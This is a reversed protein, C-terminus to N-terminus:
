KRFEWRGTFAAHLFSVAMSLFLSAEVISRWLAPGNSQFAFAVAFGGAVLFLVGVVGALFRFIPRTQAEPKLPEASM